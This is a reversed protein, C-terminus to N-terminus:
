TGRRRMESGRQRNNNGGSRWGTILTNNARAAFFVSIRM